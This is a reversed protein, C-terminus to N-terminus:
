CDNKVEEAFQWAWDFDQKIEAETLQVNKSGRWRAASAFDIFVTGDSAKRLVVHGGTNPNPIEVTYLKQKEVEYGFLKMKVLTEIPKTGPCDFWRQLEKSPKNDSMYFMVCFEYVNDEFEDKNKEYWDAVLQPVIPKESTDLQEIIELVDGKPIMEIEFNFDKDKVTLGEQRKVKEIVEQKNM